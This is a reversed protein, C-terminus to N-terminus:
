CANREFEVFRPKGELAEASARVVFVFSVPCPHAALPQKPRLHLRRLKLPHQGPLARVSTSFLASIITLLHLSCPRIVCTRKGTGLIFYHAAAATRCNPRRGDRPLVVPRLPRVASLYLLRRVCREDPSPPCSFATRVFASCGAAFFPFAFHPFRCCLKRGIRHKCSAHDLREVPFEHKRGALGRQRMRVADCRNKAANAIIGFQNRRSIKEAHRADNLIGAFPNFLTKAGRHRPENSFQALEIIEGRFRARLRLFGIRRHLGLRKAAHEEGHALIQADHQELKCAAQLRKAPKRRRVAFTRLLEAALRKRHIRREGVAEANPLDLPLKLIQRQAKRPRRFVM